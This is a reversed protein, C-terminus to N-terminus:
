NKFANALGAVVGAVLSPLVFGQWGHEHLWIGYNAQDTAFTVLGNMLFIALMTVLPRKPAIYGGLLGILLSIIILWPM